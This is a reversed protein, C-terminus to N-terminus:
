AKVVRLYYTNITTPSGDPFEQARYDDANVFRTQYNGSGNLRTDAIGSGKTYNATSTGIEYRLTYGDTSSTATHGMFNEILQDFTPFGTTPYEQLDNDGRIYLPLTMSPVPNSAFDNRHLYYSTINTPQDQTEPISGATYASTDARTDTYVPNSSVLVSRNTGTGPTTSTSIYYTGAQQTTTDTSFIIDFAPHIFTDKMDQANMAQINNQSDFYVPYRKGDDPYLTQHVTSVQQTIRNWTVNVVSPEATTAENPFASASTSQAGAQLRSDTIDSLNGTNSSDVSLSVPLSTQHKFICFQIIDDIMADSMEQINGSNNYLPRRVAM